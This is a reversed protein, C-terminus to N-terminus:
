DRILYRVHLRQRVELGAIGLCRPSSGPPGYPSAAAGHHYAQQQQQQQQYQDHPSFMAGNQGQYDGPAVAMKEAGSGDFYGAPQPHHEM